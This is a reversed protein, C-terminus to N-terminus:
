TMKFLLEAVADQMMVSSVTAGGSSEARIWIIVTAGGWCGTRIWIM